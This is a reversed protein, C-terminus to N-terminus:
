KIVWWDSVEDTVGATANWTVTGKGVLVGIVMCNHTGHRYDLWVRVVGVHSYLISWNNRHMGSGKGAVWPPTGFALSVSPNTSESPTIM